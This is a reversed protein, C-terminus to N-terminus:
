LISFMFTVGASIQSLNDESTEKGMLNLMQYKVSLDISGFAPVSVVVGGGLGLGERTTSVAGSDTTTLSNVLADIGLYPQIVPSPIAYELGAGFSYGVFSETSPSKIPLRTYQGSAVLRVPILGDVRLKAGAFWGTGVGDSLTGSPLAAGGGVGFQLSVPPSPLQAYGAACALLLVIAMLSMRTSM